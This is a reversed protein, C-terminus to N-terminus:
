RFSTDMQKSGPVEFRTGTAEHIRRRAKKSMGPRTLKPRFGSSNRLYRGNEEQRIVGDNYKVIMHYAMQRWRKVMQDGVECGYDSLHSIAAARDSKMLELARQEVESQRAFYSTQLSDRV